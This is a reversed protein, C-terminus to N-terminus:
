NSSDPSLDCFNSESIVNNSADGSIMVISCDINKLRVQKVLDIGNMQPMKIDSVLIFPSEGSHEIFHLAKRAESFTHVQYRHFEFFQKLVRLLQTEDDVFLIHNDSVPQANLQEIKIPKEANIIIPLKICIETGQDIISSVDISGNHNDIVRKVISLGVGHSNNQKTSFGENFIKDM